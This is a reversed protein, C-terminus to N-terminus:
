QVNSSFGLPILSTINWAFIKIEAGTTDGLAATIEKSDNAALTIDASAVDASVMAGDKYAAAIPRFTVAEGTLNKCTYTIKGDESGFNIIAISGVKMDPFIENIEAPSYGMEMLQNATKGSLAKKLIGIVETNNETFDVKKEAFFSPDLYFAIKKNQYYGILGNKGDGSKTTLNGIRYKGSDENASITIINPEELTYGSTKYFASRTLIGRTSNTDNYGIRNINRVYETYSLLAVESETAFAEQSYVDTTNIPENWWRHKELYSRMDNPILTTKSVTQENWFAENNIKNAISNPDNPDYVFKKLALIDTAYWNLKEDIINSVTAVFQGDNENANVSELLVFESGDFSFKYKEPTTKVGQSNKDTIGLSACTEFTPKAETAVANTYKTDSVADGDYVSIQCKIEAGLDDFKVTYSDSNGVLDAASGDANVKVWKYETKAATNDTEVEATLNTGLKGNGKLIASTIKVNGAAIGIKVLEDTTYIKKLADLGGDKAAISKLIEAAASGDEALLTTDLKVNKFFEESLYFCPRIARNKNSDSTDNTDKAEIIRNAGFCNFIWVKSKGGMPTRTWWSGEVIKLGIRDANAKYETLSLLAVKCITSYATTKDSSNRETYWTHDNIYSSMLPFNTTIYSEENIRSAISTTHEPDFKYNDAVTDYVIGKETYENLMVFYGDNEGANVNKLLIYKKSDATSDTKFLYKAPADDLKSISNFWSTQYVYELGLKDVEDVSLNETAAFAPIAASMLM